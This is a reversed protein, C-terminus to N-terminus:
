LDGIRGGVCGDAEENVWRISQGRGRLVVDAPVFQHGVVRVVVVDEEVSQLVGTATSTAAAAAPVPMTSAATSTLMPASTM